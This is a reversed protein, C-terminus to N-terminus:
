SPRLALRYVRAGVDRTTFRQYRRARMQPSIPNQQREQKKDRDDVNRIRRKEAHGVDDVHEALPRQGPHHRDSHGEDDDGPTEIKRDSRAKGEARNHRRKEPCMVQRKRHSHEGGDSRAENNTAYITPKHREDPDVRKNRGDTGPEDYEADIKERCRVGVNLDVLRAEIHQARSSPQRKGEFSHDQQGRQDEAFSNEGLGDIATV